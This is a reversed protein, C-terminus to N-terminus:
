GEAVSGPVIKKREERKMGKQTPKLDTMAATAGCTLEGRGTGSNGKEEM